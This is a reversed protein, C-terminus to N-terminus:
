VLLASIRCEVEVHKVRGLVTFSRPRSAILQFNIVYKCIVERASARSFSRQYASRRFISM